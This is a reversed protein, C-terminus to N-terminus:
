LVIGPTRSIRDTGVPKERSNWLENHSQNRLSGVPLPFFKMPQAQLSHGKVTDFHDM